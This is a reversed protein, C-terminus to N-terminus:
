IVKETPKPNKHIWMDENLLGEKKLNLNRKDEKKKGNEANKNKVADDKSMAEM